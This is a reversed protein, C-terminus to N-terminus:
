GIKILGERVAQEITEAVFKWQSGHIEEWEKWGINHLESHEGRTLPFTWLDSVKSGMVGYGHGILHHPDDAPMGSIVSPLSKVWDLYKRSRFPKVKALM